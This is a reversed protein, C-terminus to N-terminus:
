DDDDDDDDDDADLLQYNKNKEEIELLKQQDATLTKEKKEKHPVKDFLERAFAILSDDVEVTGTDKLREVLEASTDSKKALGVFYQAIYTDSIGLIDHLKDNVWVETNKAM